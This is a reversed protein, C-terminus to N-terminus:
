NLVLLEKLKGNLLVLEPPEQPNRCAAPGQFFREGGCPPQLGWSRFLSKKWYCRRGHPGQNPPKRRDSNRFTKASPDIQESVISTDCPDDHPVWESPAAGMKLARRLFPFNGSGGPLEVEWHRM